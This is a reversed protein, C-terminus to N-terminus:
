GYQYIAAGEVDRYRFANVWSLSVRDGFRFGAGLSLSGYWGTTDDDDSDTVGGALRVDLGAPLPVNADGPRRTVFGFRYFGLDALLATTALPNGDNVGLSTQRNIEALFDAYADAGEQEFFDVIQDELEDENAATFTRTFGTSPITLTASTGAANRTFLVADSLGGYRLSASLDDDELTAFEENSDILNEGLDVINDGGASATHGRGTATLTFPEASRSTHLPVALLAVLLAFLRPRPMNREEQPVARSM